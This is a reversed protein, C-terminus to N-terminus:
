ALLPALQLVLAGELPLGGHVLLAKLTLISLVHRLQLGLVVLMLVLQVGRGCARRLAFHFARLLARAHLCVRRGPSILGLRRLLGAHLCLLLLREVRLVLVYHTVHGLRRLLAHLEQEPLRVQELM